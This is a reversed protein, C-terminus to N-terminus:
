QHEPYYTKSSDLALTQVCGPQAAPANSLTTRPSPVTLPSSTSRPLRGFLRVRTLLQVSSFQIEVGPAERTASHYLVQRGICSMPTQDRLCSSGSSFSM